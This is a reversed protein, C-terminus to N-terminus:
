SSLSRADAYASWEACTGLCALSLLDAIPIPFVDTEDRRRPRTQIQTQTQTQPRPPM